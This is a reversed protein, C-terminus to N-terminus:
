QKWDISLNKFTVSIDDKKYNVMSFYTMVLQKIDTTNPKIDSYEIMFKLPVESNLKPIRTEGGLSMVYSTSRNGQPDTANSQQSQLSRVVGNNVLIGEIVVKGTSSNGIVSNIKFSVDKEVMSISSSMLNLTEKYYEVDKTLKSITSNQTAIISEKQSLTSKLAACNEQANTYSFLFLASATLLQIKM